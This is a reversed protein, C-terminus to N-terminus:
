ASGTFAGDLLTLDHCAAAGTHGARPTASTSTGVAPALAASPRPARAPSMGTHTSAAAPAAAAASPMGAPASAWGARLGCEAPSPFEDGLRRGEDGHVSAPKDWGSSFRVSIRHNRDPVRIRDAVSGIEGVVDALLEVAIRSIPGRHRVKWEPLVKKGPGSGADRRLPGPAPAARPRGLAGRVRTTGPRGSPAPRDGHVREGAVGNRRSAIERSGRDARGHVPGSPVLFGALDSGSKTRLLHSAKYEYAHQGSRGRLTRICEAAVNIDLRVSAYAIELAHETSTQTNEM